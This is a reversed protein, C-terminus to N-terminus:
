WYVNIPEVHYIWGAIKDSEKLQDAKTHVKIFVEQVIDEATAREKVKAEVFSVLEGYLSKWTTSAIEQM